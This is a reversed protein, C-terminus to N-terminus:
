LGPLDVVFIRTFVYQCGFGTVLAVLVVWPMRRWEFRLLTGIALVLFMATMVAFDTLRLQLVAVYAITLLAVVLADLRRPRVPDAEDPPRRPRRAAVAMICVCLLIILGAVAIPVPAGGMPEFVGAPILRAEWLVAACVAVIAAAVGLVTRPDSGDDSMISM